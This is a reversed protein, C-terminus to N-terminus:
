RKVMVLVPNSEDHLSKALKVLDDYKQGYLRRMETANGSLVYERLDFAEVWDVLISDNYIYKPFFPLGGDIDNQFQSGIIRVTNNSKNFYGRLYEENQPGFLTFYINDVDEMDQYHRYRNAMRDIAREIDAHTTPFTVEYEIPVEKKGLTIISYPILEKETVTYLTDVRFERFRINGQYSYLTIWRSRGGKHRENQQFYNPYSKRINFNLDYIGLSPNIEPYSSLFYFILSSDNLSLFQSCDFDLKYTSLLHNDLDYEFCRKGDVVLYIKQGDPSFCFDHIGLSYEGPGRGLGSIRRIYHGLYDYLLLQRHRDYVAIHSDTLKLNIIDGLLSKSNTELPIYTITSRIESLGTKQINDIEKELSIIYPLETIVESHQVQNNRPVCSSFFVLFVIVKKM